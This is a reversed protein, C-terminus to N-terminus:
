FKMSLTVPVTVNNAPVSISAAGSNTAVRDFPKGLPNTTSPVMYVSYGVSIKDTSAQGLTWMYPLDASCTGYGSNVLTAKAFAEELYEGGVSDYISISLDCYVVDGAPVPTSAGINIDITVEVAGDYVTGTLAQAPTSLAGALSVGLAM